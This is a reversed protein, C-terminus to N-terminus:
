ALSPLKLIVLIVRVGFFVTNKQAELQFVYIGGFKDQSLPFESSPDHNILQANGVRQSQNAHTVRLAAGAPGEQAWLKLAFERPHSLTVPYGDTAEWCPSSRVRVSQAPSPAFPGREPRCTHQLHGQEFDASMHAGERVTRSAPFMRIEWIDEGPAGFEGLM